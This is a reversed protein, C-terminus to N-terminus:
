RSRYRRRALPPLARGAAWARGPGLLGGFPRGLRALGTSVRYFLPRSWALSWLTFAVREPFPAIREEVRDRRLELLLEHLPIKVPCAATCAGCLSSAHPLDPARELGALLPALVAGMPGSYVPGYAAGGAKRYVPCVNICAGCRICNLMERYRGSRIDTRGNDLIVVHLEDPGDQEGDRRPGTVLTTYSTLKQGTASRALLKLLVVLEALTPVVREMGMVAVHVRPLSSVLRGNGENTVLCVSGTEAVAFNAGTIGLDATGFAERLQRRATRALDVLEPSVPAGEVQSFLAAIEERTKEIAPAVIHVPHEGALQLIYEGLDTEVVQVDAAELADNLALEETVMSKSKAATRAGTRRAIEVVVDRAEDGTTCRHVHGGRARVAREFDALHRDLEAITRTRIERARERLAEVDGLAEWAETRHALLRATAADLAAQTHSDALRGVAVARFDGPPRALRPNM